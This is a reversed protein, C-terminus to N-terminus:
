LEKSLQNKFFELQDILHQVGVENMTLTTYGITFTLRNDDTRGFSYITKPEPEKVSKAPEIYPGPFPLVNSKDKNRFFDFIM